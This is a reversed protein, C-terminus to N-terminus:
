FKMNSAVIEYELACYVLPPFLITISELLFLCKKATSQSAFQAIIYSRLSNCIKKELKLSSHLREIRNMVHFFCTENEILM